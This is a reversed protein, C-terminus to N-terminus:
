KRFAPTLRARAPRGRRRSAAQAVLLALGAALVWWAPRIQFSFDLNAAFVVWRPANMFLTYFGEEVLAAGFAALAAALATTWLPPPRWLRQALRCLALLLLLGSLLVPEFADIRVQMFFHLLGALVAVHAWLHIRRWLRVGLRRVARDSSTAGLVVLTLAAFMGIALYLRLVIESAIRGWMFKQDICYFALHLAVYFLASLGLMRRVGVLVNWGTLGRVPSVALTLVLGRMAWDGSERLIDTVPKASLLGAQWRYAMWLAPLSVLLLVVLRLGSFRGGRDTWPLCAVAKARMSIM